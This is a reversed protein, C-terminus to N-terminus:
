EVSHFPQAEIGQVADECCEESRRKAMRRENKSFYGHSAFCHNDIQNMLQM